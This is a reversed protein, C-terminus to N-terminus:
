AAGLLGVWKGADGWWKRRCPRGDAYVGDGGRHLGPGRGTNHQTYQCVACLVTSEIQV